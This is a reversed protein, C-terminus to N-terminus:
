CLRQLTAASDTIAKPVIEPPEYARGEHTYLFLVDAAALLNSKPNNRVPSHIERQNLDHLWNPRTFDIDPTARSWEDLIKRRALEYARQYGPLAIHTLAHRVLNVHLPRGNTQGAVIFEIMDVVTECAGSREFVGDAYNVAAPVFDTVALPRKLADRLQWAGRPPVEPLNWINIKPNCPFRHARQHEPTGTADQYAAGTYTIVASEQIWGQSRLFAVGIAVEATAQARGRVHLELDRLEIGSIKFAPNDVGGIFQRKGTEGRTLFGPQFKPM